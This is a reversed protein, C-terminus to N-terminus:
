ERPLVRIMGNKICIRQAYVLNVYVYLANTTSSLTVNVNADSVNSLDISGAYTNQNEGFSQSLNDSFSITYLNSSILNKQGLFDYDELLYYRYYADTIDFQAAQLYNSGSKLNYNTLAQYDRYNIAGATSLDAQEKIQLEMYILDKNNVEPLQITQATSASAAVPWRKQGYSYDFVVFGQPENSRARIFNNVAQGADSYVCVLKYDSLTMVPTTGDYECLAGVSGRGCYVRLELDDIVNIPCPQSFISFMEKLPLFFTQASAYATNREATTGMGVQKKLVTYEDDNNHSILNSDLNEPYCTDILAGNSWLEYRQHYWNPLGDCGRKYTGGTQTLASVAMKIAIDTIVDSGNKLISFSIQAGSMTFDPNQDPAIEKLTDKKSLVRSFKNAIYDALILDDNYFLQKTKRM